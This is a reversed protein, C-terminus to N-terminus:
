LMKQGQRNYNTNQPFMNQGRKEETFHAKIQFGKSPVLTIKIKSDTISNLLNPM